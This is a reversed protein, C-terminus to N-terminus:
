AGIGIRDLRPLVYTLCDRRIATLLAQRPTGSVRVAEAVLLFNREPFLDLGDQWTYTTAGTQLAQVVLSHDAANDGKGPFIERAYQAAMGGAKAMSFGCLKASTTLPMRSSSVSANTVEAWPAEFLWAGGIPGDGCGKPYLTQARRIVSSLSRSTLRAFWIFDFGSDTMLKRSAAAPMLLCAAFHDSEPNMMKNDNTDLGIYSPEVRRFANEILERLEHGLTHEIRRSAGDPVYVIPDQDGYWVNMGDLGALERSFRQFRVGLREFLSELDHYHIFAGVEFFSRFEDALEETRVQTFHSISRATLFGRAFDLLPTAEAMM